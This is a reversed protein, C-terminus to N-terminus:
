LSGTCEMYPALPCPAWQSQAAHGQAAPDQLTDKFIRLSQISRSKDDQRITKDQRRTKVDVSTTKDGQRRSTKDDQRWTKDQRRPTKDDQRRTKDQRRSTKVDQRRTTKVDQRRTKDQRIIM